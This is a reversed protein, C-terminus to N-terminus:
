LLNHIPGFSPAYNRWDWAAIAVTDDFSDGSVDRIVGNSAPGNVHVGDRWHRDLRIGEVLFDRVNGLHVAFARSQRVTVNRVSVKSVNHLLIVGHTGPVPQQKSSF